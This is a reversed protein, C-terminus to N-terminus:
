SLLIISTKMTNELNKQSNALAESSKSTKEGFKEVLRELNKCFLQSMSQLM